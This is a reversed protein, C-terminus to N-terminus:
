RQNARTITLGAVVAVRFRALDAGMAQRTAASFLAPPLRLLIRPLASLAMRLALLQARGASYHKRYFRLRSLAQRRETEAQGVQASSGGLDHRVAVDPVSVVRWGSARARYCWDVDEYYMFFEPDLLGIDALLERRAFLCAGSVWAVDRAQGDKAPVNERRQGPYSTEYGPVQRGNADVSPCGAIGIKVDSRMADLVRNLSDAGIQVDPNLLLLFEGSTHALAANAARAFGENKSNRILRVHPFDRVARDASGDTSANDVLWTEAPRGQTAAALSQLCAPVLDGGNWNVIIVSLEVLPHTM